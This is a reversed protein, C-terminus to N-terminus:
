KEGMNWTRSFFWEDVVWTMEFLIACLCFLASFIKLEGFKYLEDLINANRKDNKMM